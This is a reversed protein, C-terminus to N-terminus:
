RLIERKVEKWQFNVLVDPQSFFYEELYTEIEMRWIEEIVDPLNEVMFFSIGLHFNKDNIKANIDRLTGILGNADFGNKDQFTKLVEYEPALELFAFRRRLAFDVLAISRDATNMTGIIRVNEPISFPMGGALPIQSDRYELLYMLEGFVKSLNARNLEDIILVCLDNCHRAKLCFEIFRGSKLNFQLNGKEDTNPRIGQIFEEYTYSPHFQICEWFGGTGGVIHRALHNAIFTKGTGPPGFFIAQKKRNISRIWNAIRDESFGTDKACQEISYEPEREGKDVFDENAEDLISRIIEYEDSRLKFLSGQNNILPECNTLETAARLESLSLPQPFHEIKQFEFAEGKESQHLERTVKCLAVIQRVPSASYGLLLDGFKVNQFYQYIRRKNGRANHSTYKEVAGVPTTAINWIKPNANLWWYQTEKEIDSENSTNNETEVDDKVLAHLYQVFESYKTIDTITKIAFKNNPDVLWEGKCKWDVKRVNRYYTRSPEFMYDSDIIGFGVIRDRGIKAFVHDGIQMNRCFSFCTTANNKKSSEPENEHERMADAIENKSGYNRIDGLHDWGIAMIGQDYFEDWYEGGRGPAFLWVSREESPDSVQPGKKGQLWAEYSIEYFPKQFLEKTKKMYDNYTEFDTIDKIVLGNIGLYARNVNDINLYQDPNIWFLGMTINYKIYKQKLAQNFTREQVSNEIAELFLTWLRYVDNEGRNERYSVFWTQQNNVVPVGAFDSPVDATLGWKEKLMRIIEVRNVDKIGRNFNAFFTFPDIEDLPIQSGDAGKDVLSITPLNRNQMEEIIEILEQQKYRYEALKNAIEKYIKIWTFRDMQNLWM